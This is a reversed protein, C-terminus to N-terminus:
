QGMQSFQPPPPQTCITPSGTTMGPNNVCDNSDKHLQCGASVLLALAVAVPWTRSM